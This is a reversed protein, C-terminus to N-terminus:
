VPIWEMTAPDHFMTHLRRRLYDATARIIAADRRRVRIDLVLCRGVLDDYVMNLAYSREPTDPAVREIVSRRLRRLAAAGSRRTDGRGGPPGMINRLPDDLACPRDFGFRDRRERYHDRLTSRLRHVPDIMRRRARPHPPQRLDDLLRDLYELKALVPWGAYRRRWGSRPALWVAFSEAFDEDPHCQAYWDRLHHVHDRSAPDPRYRSPYRRGSRGFLQRWERRRELHYAHQLAHATEHRLLKMCESRTAGEVEHMVSRELRRLRPHALYFPLAFGAVGDPSFWEDSMWIHPRFSLGREDLESELRSVCSELFPGPRRLGLDVFRLALLEDDDAEAWWPTATPGGPDGVM